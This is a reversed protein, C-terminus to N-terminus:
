DEFFSLQRRDSRGKRNAVRRVHRESIGLQQAIENRTLGAGSLEAIQLPVSQSRAHPIYIKEGRLFQCLARGREEGIAVLIKHDPKPAKPFDLQQGGFHSMLELALPMGLTEAVDILSRPIDELRVPLNESM